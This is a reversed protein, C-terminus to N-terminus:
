RAPLNARPPVTGAVAVHVALVAGAGEAISCDAVTVFLTNPDGGSFCVSTVFGAPLTVQATLAGHRDRREITGGPGTAVWAQDDDDVCLGDYHGSASRCLERTTGDDDIALLVGRAYDALVIRSGAAAMGNPWTIGTAWTWDVRDGHVRAVSGPVPADGALPRYNLVGLLLDGGATTGLDNIGTAGAPRGFITSGDATDVLDRGSAVLRGDTTVAMGGIGTRREVRRERISGDDDIAHVGGGMVDSVWLAEEFWTPAEPFVFGGVVLRVAETSTTM